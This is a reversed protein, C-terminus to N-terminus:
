QMVAGPTGVESVIRVQMGPRMVGDTNDLTAWVRITGTDPDVWVATAEPVIGTRLVQGWTTRVQLRAKQLFEEESSAGTRAMQNLRVPYPVEYVVRVPDLDVVQFLPPDGSSFELLAGVRVRPDEIYGSIPARIVTDNLATRALSLEASAAKRSAKALLLGTRAEVLSVESATGSTSLREVRALRSRAQELLADAQALRAEAAAVSLKSIDQQLRVLEAGADVYDGQSVMVEAVIGEARSYVDAQHIAEIRGDFELTEADASVVVGVACLGALVLARVKGKGHLTLDPM